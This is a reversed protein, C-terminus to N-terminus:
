GLLNLEKLSSYNRDGIIIHDLLNIGIIKGAESINKTSIIDARSPKSDGSPHNHVVIINLADCRLATAFIERTSVLSQNITGKTITMDKIFHCKTDLFMVVLHEQELHRMKEMYYDAITSPKNYQLDDKAKIRSIRRALESICMVQVAKVKGIGKIKILEEKTLHMISLLDNKGFSNLITNSLDYASIGNTGTRLIVALLEADTLFEAGKEFCKEYPRDNKPIDKIKNMHRWEERWTCPM